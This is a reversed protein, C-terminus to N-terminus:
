RRRWLFSIVMGVGLAVLLSKVPSEQVKQALKAELEHMKLKGEAYKEAAGEKLDHLKEQVAEKALHGMDALNSRTEASKERFRDQISTVDSM